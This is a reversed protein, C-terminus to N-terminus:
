GVKGQTSGKKGLGNKRAVYVSTAVILMLIEAVGFPLLVDHAVKSCVFLEIALIILSIFFGGLGFAAVHLMSTSFVRRSMKLAVMLPLFGVFGAVLGALVALMM